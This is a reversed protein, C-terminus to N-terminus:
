KEEPNALSEMVHDHHRGTGGDPQQVSDRGDAGFLLERLPDWRRSPLSSTWSPRPPVPTAAPVARASRRAAPPWASRAVALTEAVAAAPTPGAFVFLVKSM